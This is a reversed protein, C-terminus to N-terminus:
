VCAVIAKPDDRELVYHQVVPKCGFLFDLSAVCGCRRFLRFLRNRRRLYCIHNATTRRIFAGRSGRWFELDTILYARAINMRFGVCAQRPIRAPMCAFHHADDTTVDKWVAVRNAGAFVWM